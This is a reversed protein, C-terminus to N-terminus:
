CVTEAEAIIFSACKDSLGIRKLVDRIFMQGVVDKGLRVVAVCSEKCIFSIANSVVHEIAESMDTVDYEARFMITPAYHLVYGARSFVTGMEVPGNKDPILVISRVHLRDLIEINGPDGDCLYITDTIKRCSM